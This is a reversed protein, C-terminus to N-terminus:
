YKTPCRVGISNAPIFATVMVTRTSAFAQSQSTYGYVDIQNPAGTSVSGNASITDVPSYPGLTPIGAPAQGPAWAATLTIGEIVPRWNTGALSDDRFNDLKIAVGGIPIDDRSTQTIATVGQAQDPGIGTIEFPVAPCTTGKIGTASFGESGSDNGTEQPSLGTPDLLNIPDNGVYAYLNTGGSLGIPDTQLFRGLNPNYYRANVYYLGTQRTERVCELALGARLGITATSNYVSPGPNWATKKTEFGLRPKKSLQPMAALPPQSLVPNFALQMQMRNYSKLPQM